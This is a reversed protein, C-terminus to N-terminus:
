DEFGTKKDKNLHLLWKSLCFLMGCLTFLCCVFGAVFFSFKLALGAILLRLLGCRGWIKKPPGEVDTSLQGYPSVDVHLPRGASSLQGAPRKLPDDVARPSQGSWGGSTAKGKNAGGRSIVPTSMSTAIVCNIPAM